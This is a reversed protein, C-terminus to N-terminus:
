NGSDIHFEVRRNNRRGDETENTDVPRTQGFGTSTLRSADIGHKVLWGRVSAARGQSLKMNFGAGGVNDTHGEIRVHVLEVHEKLVALVAELIPDGAPDLESSNFRFKFPDRIRIQGGQVFAQPCGNKKPDADRQGPEDPCADQADPVGDRDRDAPCGNTKPDNTRVGPEM